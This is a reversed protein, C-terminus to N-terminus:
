ADPAPTSTVDAGGDHYRRPLRLRLGTLLEYPSLEGARAVDAVTLLRDGDRGVLTAVDGVAGPADTVDLRTLDMTVVGVVPAPRGNVLAVARNGLARRYGDAYGCAVTAIRRPAPATWTADYSVVEGAEVRRLEVIRARLAVVPEPELAGGSAVGYLFIGSRVLSWRSPAHHEVAPSNEAHVVAPRSPLAALAEDFRREQLERSGDSLEASHFHTFAGEPPHREVLDRVAAIEDWRVGARSMGTDIGLHWPEPGGEGWAAIAAPDGLGPTLRLARAAGFECPLLPTFVVIPRAVGAERLARGEDVTAVGYGWPALPELARVAALAGLGYADAKVMPLLPVGARRAIAEGNRRLAGVDVELWARATTTLSQRTM